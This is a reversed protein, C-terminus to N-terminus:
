SRSTSASRRCCPCTNSIGLWPSICGGHFWHKCPLMTVEDGLHVNVKCITCEADGQDGMMSTDVPIRLLAAVERPNAETTSEDDYYVNDIPFGRDIYASNGPDLGEEILEMLNSIAGHTDSVEAMLYDLQAMQEILEVIFDGINLLPGNNQVHNELTSTITSPVFESANLGIYFTEINQWIVGAM